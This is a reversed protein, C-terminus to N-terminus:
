RETGGDVVAALGASRWKPVCCTGLNTICGFGEGRRMGGIPPSAPAMVAPAARAGGVDGLGIMSRSCLAISPGASAACLLADTHM